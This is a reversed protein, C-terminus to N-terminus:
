VAKLMQSYELQCELSQAQAYTLLGQNWQTFLEFVKEVLKISHQKNEEPIYINQIYEHMDDSHAEHDQEAAVHLGGFYKYEKNTTLQLEETVKKTFSLFIDALGELSELIVLKEIETSEAIYKYLEYTVLRSAKTEEHWLFFLADNMELQCNFGLSEMDELFWQWHNADEYAHQNLISQIKSNTHEQYFAYKCLDTFGLIFPASCPVFALRKLPNISQDKMFHFLPSQAYVKQKSEILALISKM